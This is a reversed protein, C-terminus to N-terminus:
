VGSWPYSWSASERVWVCLRTFHRVRLLRGHVRALLWQRLKPSCGCPCGPIPETGAAQDM